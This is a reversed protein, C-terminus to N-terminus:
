GGFKGLMELFEAKGIGGVAYDLVEGEPTTLITIPTGQVNYRQFAADAGPEGAYVMVPIVQEHIASMVEPDAFVERKMIRCPVCWDATFFMLVPKGSQAATRRASAIDDAWEVENPPVWFSYWATALSAVLFVLWFARWFPHPKRRPPPSSEDPPIPTAPAARKM